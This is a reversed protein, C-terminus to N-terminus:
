APTERGRHAASREGPERPAARVRYREFRTSLRGSNPPNEAGGLWGVVGPEISVPPVFSRQSRLPAL